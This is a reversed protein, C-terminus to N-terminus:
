YETAREAFRLDKFPNHSPSSYHIRTPRDRLKGLKVPYVLATNRLQEGTVVIGITSRKDGGWTIAAQATKFIVKPNLRSFVNVVGNYRRGDFIWYDFVDNKVPYSNSGAMRWGHLKVFERNRSTREKGKVYQPLKGGKWGAWMWVPISPNDRLPYGSISSREFRGREKRLREAVKKEKREREERERAQRDRERKREYNRDREQRSKKSFDSFANRWHNKGLEIVDFAASLDKFIEESGGLDPHYKKFLLRKYRRLADKDPEDPFEPAYKRILDLAEQYTLAELIYFRIRSM